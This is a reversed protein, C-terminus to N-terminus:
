VPVVGAEEDRAYAVATGIAATGWSRGLGPMCPKALPYASSAGMALVCLVTITPNVDFDGSAAIAFPARRAHTGHVPAAAKRAVKARPGDGHLEKRWGFIRSVYQDARPDLNLCCTAIGNRTLEEVAKKAYSRLYQPDRVDGGVLEVDTVVGALAGHDSQTPEVLVAARDVGGQAAQRM